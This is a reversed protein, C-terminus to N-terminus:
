SGSDHTGLPCQSGPEEGSLAGFIDLLERWLASDGGSIKIYQSNNYILVNSFDRMERSQNKPHRIAVTLDFCKFAQISEPFSPDTALFKQVYTVSNGITIFGNHANNSASISYSAILPLSPSRFEMGETEEHGSPFLEFRVPIPFDGGFVHVFYVPKNRDPLQSLAHDLASQGGFALIVPFFGIIIAGIFRLFTNIVIEIM